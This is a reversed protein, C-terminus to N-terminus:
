ICHMFQKNTSKTQKDTQKNTTTTTTTQKTKKPKEQKKKKKKFFHNPEFASLCVFLSFTFQTFQTYDTNYVCM